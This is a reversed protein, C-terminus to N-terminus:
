LSELVAACSRRRDCRPVPVDVSQSAASDSRHTSGSQIRQWRDPRSIDQSHGLRDECLSHSVASARRSAVSTAASSRYRPSGLLGSRHMADLLIQLQLSRRRSFDETRFTHGTPTSSHSLCVTASESASFRRSSPAHSRQHHDVRSGGLHGSRNLGEAQSISRRFASSKSSSPSSAMLLQRQEGDQDYDQVCADGYASARRQNAWAFTSMESHTMPDKSFETRSLLCASTLSPGIEAPLDLLQGLESLLRDVDGTNHLLDPRVRELFELAETQLLTQQHQEVADTAVSLSDNCSATLYLGQSRASDDGPAVLGGDFSFGTDAMTPGRQVEVASGVQEDWWRSNQGSSSEPRTASHIHTRPSLPTFSPARHPIEDSYSRQYFSSSSAARETGTWPEEPLFNVSHPSAIVPPITSPGSFHNQSESKGSPAPPPPMTARQVPAASSAPHTASIQWDTSFADQAPAQSFTSWSPGGFRNVEHEHSFPSRMFSNPNGIPPM